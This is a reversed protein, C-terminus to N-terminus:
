EREKTKTKLTAAETPQLGKQKEEAKIKALQKKANDSCFNEQDYELCRQFYKKSEQLAPEVVGDLGERYCLGINFAGSPSKKQEAECFLEFAKKSPKVFFNM